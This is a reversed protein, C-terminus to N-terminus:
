TAQTGARAPFGNILKLSRIPSDPEAQRLLRTKLKGSLFPKRDRLRIDSFRNLAASLSVGFRSTLAPLFRKKWLWEAETATMMLETICAARELRMEDAIRFLERVLLSVPM